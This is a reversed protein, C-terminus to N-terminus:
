VRAFHFPLLNCSSCGLFHLVKYIYDGVRIIFFEDLLLGSFILYQDEGILFLGLGQVFTEGLSIFILEEETFDALFIFRFKELFKTDSFNWSDEGQGVSSCVSTFLVITRLDLDVLQLLVQASIRVTLDFDLLLLHHM